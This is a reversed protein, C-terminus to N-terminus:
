DDSEHRDKWFYRRYELRQRHVEAEGLPDYDCPGTFSIIDSGSPEGLVPQDSYLTEELIAPFKLFCSSGGGSSVKSIIGQAGSSEVASLMLVCPLIVVLLSLKIRM